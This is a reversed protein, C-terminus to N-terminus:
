ICSSLVLDLHLLLPIEQKICSIAVIINDAVGGYSTADGAHGNRWRIHGPIGFYLIHGICSGADFDPSSRPTLISCADSAATLM